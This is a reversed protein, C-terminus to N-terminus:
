TPVNGQFGGGDCDHGVVSEGWRGRAGREQTGAGGGGEEGGGRDFVFWTEVDGQGRSAGGEGVGVCVAVGVM